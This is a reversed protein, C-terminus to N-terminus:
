RSRDALSDMGGWKSPVKFLKLRTVTDTLGSSVNYIGLMDSPMDDKKTKKLKLERVKDELM